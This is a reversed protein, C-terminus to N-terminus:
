PRRSDHVADFGWKMEQRVDVFEERVEAQFRELRDNAVQVGEAVKRIDSANMEVLVRVGRIEGEVNEFRQDVREFRQDVQEFRQDVQDFCQDIRDFKRGLFDVLERYEDPTMHLRKGGGSTM